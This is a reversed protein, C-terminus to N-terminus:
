SDELKVCVPVYGPDVPLDNRKLAEGALQDCRENQPHGVHGRIWEFTVKHKACADLLRAWLDANKAKEDPTRMWGNRKWKRAWGKTIGDVLYKSDSYVTVVSGPKRLAELGAIAAFIEARNNTTERFGGSIEKLRGEASLIVGYGGRGPNPSCGGDTFISIVSHEISGPSPVELAPKKDGLMAADDMLAGISREVEMPHSVVDREELRLVLFGSQLLDADRCRGDLRTKRACRTDGDVELVVRDEILFDAIRWGIVVQERFGLGMGELITRVALAGETPHARFLDARDEMWQRTISDTNVEQIRLKEVLCRAETLTKTLHWRLGMECVLFRGNSLNEIWAPDGATKQQAKETRPTIKVGTLRLYRELAERDQFLTESAERNPFAIEPQRSATVSAPSALGEESFLPGLGNQEPDPADNVLEHDM